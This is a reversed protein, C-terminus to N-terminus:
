RDEKFIKTIVEKMRAEYGKRIVEYIWETNMIFNKLDRNEIGAKRCAYAFPLLYDLTFGYLESPPLAPPLADFAGYIAARCQNMSIESGFEKQMKFAFETLNNIVDRKRLLEEPEPLVLDFYDNPFDM